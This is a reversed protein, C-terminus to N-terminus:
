LEVPEQIVVVPRITLDGQMGLEALCCAVEHLMMEMAAGYLPDVASITMKVYEDFHGSIVFDGHKVSMEPDYLKDAIRTLIEDFGVDNRFGPFPRYVIEWVRDMELRGEGESM